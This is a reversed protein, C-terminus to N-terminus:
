FTQKRRGESPANERPAPAGVADIHENLWIVIEAAHYKNVLYPLDEGWRGYCLRLASMGMSKDFFDNKLANDDTEISYGIRMGGFHQRDYTKDGFKIADKQVIVKVWFRTRVISFVLAGISGLLLIVGLIKITPNWSFIMSITFPTLLIFIIFITVPAVWFWFELACKIEAIFEDKSNRKIVTGKPTSRVEVYYPSLVESKNRDKLYSMQSVQPNTGDPNLTNAVKEDDAM